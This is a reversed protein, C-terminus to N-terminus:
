MLNPKEREVIKEMIVQTVVQIFITSATHCLQDYARVETADAEEAPVVGDVVVEYAKIGQLILTMSASWGRCNELVTLKGITDLQVYVPTEKDVRTSFSFGDTSSSGRPAMMKMGNDLTVPIDFLHTPTTPSHEPLDEYERTNDFLNRPLTPYKPNSEMDSM